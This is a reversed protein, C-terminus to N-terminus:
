SSRQVAAHHCLLCHGGDAAAAAAAAAEILALKDVSRKLQNVGTM